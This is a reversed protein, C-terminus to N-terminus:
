LKQKNKGIYRAKKTDNQGPKGKEDRWRERERYRMIKM